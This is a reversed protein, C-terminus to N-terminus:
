EEEFYSLELISEYGALSAQARGNHFPQADEFPEDIVLEGKKSIYGWNKRRCVPALQCSFSCADEYQCELVLSGTRDIFGWRGSEDAVAIWGNESEPAKADAYANKSIQNGQTDILVWKGDMQAMAANGAFASGLSNVAIDELVFDLVTEGDDTIIGWRGDKKVAAVGCANVTVAEYQLSEALPMFDYNYYSYTGGSQALVRGSSLATVDTIGTNDRGYWDGNELITLYQGNRRVAAYGSSDFPVAKEYGGDLVIRGADDVFYWNKGDSAPMKENLATPTIEIWPTARIGYEYRNKEYYDELAGSDNQQIADKLLEMADEIHRSDLKHQAAVLCEEEGAIGKKIRRKVLATYSEMDGYKEYAELLKKGIDDQSGTNYALAEEYLPIARVYLEQELFKGAEACLAEQKEKEEIGSAKKLVLMWSAALLVAMFLVLMAKKVNMEM